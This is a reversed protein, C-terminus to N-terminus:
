STATLAITLALVGVIGAVLLITLILPLATSRREANLPHYTTPMQPRQSDDAM